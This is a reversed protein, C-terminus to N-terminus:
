QQWWLWLLRLVSELGLRHCRRRPIQRRHLVALQVRTLAAADIKVPEGAMTRCASQAPMAACVVSRHARPAVTTSLACGATAVVVAVAAATTAVTMAMTAVAAVVVWAAIRLKGTSSDVRGDTSTTALRTGLTSPVHLPVSAVWVVTRTTRCVKGPSSNGCVRPPASVPALLRLKRLIRSLGRATVCPSGRVSPTTGKALSRFHDEAATRAM